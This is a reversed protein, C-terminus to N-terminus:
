FIFRKRARKKKPTESIEFTINQKRYAKEYTGKKIAPLWRVSRKIVRVLEEEMGYGHRTLPKIQDILGEPTIVFQVCVTYSGPKAGAKIPIDGNVEAEMFRKWADDGGPYEADRDPNGLVAEPLTDRLAQNCATQRQCSIAFGRVSVTVLLLVLILRIPPKM